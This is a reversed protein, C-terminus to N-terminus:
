ETCRCARDPWACLDTLIGDATAYLPGFCGAGRAEYVDYGARGGQCRVFSVSEVAEYRCAIDCGDAIALAELKDRRAGGIMYFPPCGAGGPGTDVSYAVATYRGACQFILPVDVYACVSTDVAVDEGGDGARTDGADVDGAAGDAGDTWGTISADGGCSAAAGAALALLAVWLVPLRAARASRSVGFSDAM